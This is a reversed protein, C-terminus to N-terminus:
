ARAEAASLAQLFRRAQERTGVTVRVYDGLGRLRSVNRVHVGQRRLGRVLAAPDRARLLVYNAPSAIVERGAARLEGVLQSRAEDVEEVYGRMAPLDELAAVAAAQALANVEKGNRIRNVHSLVREHAVLYGCRLGALGFAKSFSRSVVVNDAVDLLSTATAGSFEFYAEDVLLLGCTIRSSILELQPLSYLRGTPNGPNAIYVIRTSPRVHEALNRADVRFPGRTGYVPETRAGATEAFVRFHDYCPACLVVHDGPAVFTRVVHDLASDSGNFVQIQSYPRGVYGALHQRLLRGTPDAYWNLGGDDLFARLRAFVRPSPPRTAENWDLWLV